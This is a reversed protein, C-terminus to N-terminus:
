EAAKQEEDPLRTQGLDAVIIGAFFSPCETMLKTLIARQKVKAEAIAEATPPVKKMFERGDAATAKERTWPALKSLALKGRKDARAIMLWTAVDIQRGHDLYNFLGTAAARLIAREERTGRRYVLTYGDMRPKTEDLAQKFAEKSCNIMKM